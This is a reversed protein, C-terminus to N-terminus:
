TLDDFTEPSFYPEIRDLIEMFHTFIDPSMPSLWM